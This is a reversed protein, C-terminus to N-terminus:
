SNFYGQMFMVFCKFNAKPLSVIYISVYLKEAISHKERVVNM